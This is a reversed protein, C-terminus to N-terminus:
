THHLDHLPKRTTDPWANIIAKILTALPIAFFVGALGWIGGFVLVACIIAVPHLNVTESFIVPVMVNADLLHIVGFAILVTYFEGGIGWQVYAVLVVPIAVVAVGIVPVIVSLGILVSLLLAYNMGLIMFTVYSVIGVVTIQLVKGRIYNAMQLDMEQWVQEMLPRNHPLLNGVWHVLIKKDKLMFFVLVPVLVLFVLWDFIRPINAISYSVVVQGLMALEGRLTTIIDDVQQQSIVGPYADPMHRLLEQGESILRPLENILRGFQNWAQPLLLLLVAMFASLFLAFVVSVAVLYPIDYRLLSNVLGQLLYAAVAAAFLPALISGMTVLVFLGALLLLTFIVAEEDHFYRDFFSRVLKRM